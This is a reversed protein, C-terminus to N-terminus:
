RAAPPGTRIMSQAEAPARRYWDDASPDGARRLAHVLGVWNLPEDPDLEVATRYQEAAAPARDLSLLLHGLERRVAPDRPALRAAARLMDAAEQTRDQRRLIRALYLRATVDGDDRLLAARFHQEAVGDRGDRFAAVGHELESPGGLLLVLLVAAVLVAVAAGALVLARRGPRQLVDLWRAGAQPDPAAADVSAADPRGPRSGAMGALGAGAATDSGATGGAPNGAVAGHALARIESELAYVAAHGADADAARPGVTMARKVAQSLEHVLGAVTLSILDRRRLAVLVDDVSMQESLASLRVDDPAAPDSRLLLRLTRDVAQWTARLAETLAAPSDYTDLGEIATRAEQLPRLVRDADIM